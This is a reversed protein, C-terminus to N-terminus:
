FVVVVEDSPRQANHVLAVLNIPGTSRHSKNFGSGPKVHLIRVRLRRWPGRKM